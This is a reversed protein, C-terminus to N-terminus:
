ELLDILAERDTPSLGEEDQKTPIDKKLSIKQMPPVPPSIFPSDLPSTPSTTLSAEPSTLPSVVPKSPLTKAVKPAPTVKKIKPKESTQKAKPAPPVISPIYPALGAQKLGFQNLLPQITESKMWDSKMWQHIKDQTLVRFRDLDLRNNVTWQGLFFAGVVLPIFILIKSLM